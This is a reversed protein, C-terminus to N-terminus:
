VGGGNRGAKTVRLLPESTPDLAERFVKLGVKLGRALGRVMDDVPHEDM